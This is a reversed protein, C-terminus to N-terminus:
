DTAVFYGCVQGESARLIVYRNILLHSEEKTLLVLERQTIRAFQHFKHWLIIVIKDNQPVFFWMIFSYSILNKLQWFSLNANLLEHFNKFNTKLIFFKVFSLFLRARISISIRCLQSLFNHLNSHVAPFHITSFAWVM